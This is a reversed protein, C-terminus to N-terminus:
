WSMGVPQVRPTLFFEVRADFGRGVGQMRAGMLHKRFCWRLATDRSASVVDIATVRGERATIMAVVEGKVASGRMVDECCARLVGLRQGVAARIGPILTQEVGTVQVLSLQATVPSRVESRKGAGRRRPKSVEVPEAPVSVMPAEVAVAPEVVAAEVVEVPEVVEVAPSIENEMGNGFVPYQGGIWWLVGVCCGAGIAGFWGWARRRGRPVARPGEEAMVGFERPGVRREEELVLGPGLERPGVRHGQEPIGVLERPGAALGHHHFQRGTLPTELM